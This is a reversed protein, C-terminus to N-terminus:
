PLVAGLGGIVLATVAIRVVSSPEVTVTITPSLRGIVAALTMALASALAVAVGVSWIAQALVVGVLRATRAGLAKVIAHERLNAQTLTFLTL